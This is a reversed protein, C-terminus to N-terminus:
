TSVPWGAARFANVAPNGHTFQYTVHGGVGVHVFRALGPTLAIEGTAGLQPLRGALVTM